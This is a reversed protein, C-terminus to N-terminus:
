LEYKYITGLQQYENYTLFLLIELMQVQLFYYTFAKYEFIQKKKPKIISPDTTTESLDSSPYRSHCNELNCYILM